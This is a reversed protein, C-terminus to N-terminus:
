LADLPVARWGANATDARVGAAHPTISVTSVSEPLLLIKARRSSNVFPFDEHEIQSLGGGPLIRVKFHRNEVFSLAPVVGPERSFM